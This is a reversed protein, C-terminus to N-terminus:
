FSGAIGIGNGSSYPMVRLSSLASSPATTVPRARGGVITMILGALQTIGDGVIWPVSHNIIYDKPAGSVAPLWIGSVFPGIIPIMLTYYIPKRETSVGQAFIPGLVIPPVMACFLMSLGAGFMAENTRRERGGVAPATPTLAAVPPPPPAAVYIMPAPAAVPEPTPSAVVPEPTPVPALAAAPPSLAAPPPTPVPAAASRPRATPTVAAAAPAPTPRPKSTTAVAPPSAPASATSTTTPAATTPPPPVPVPQPPRRPREPTRAAEAVCQEAESRRTPQGDQVDVQVLNLYTQCARRADLPQGLRLYTEGIRILIEKPGPAGYAQSYLQLALEHNGRAAAAQAQAELGQWDDAHSWGPAALLGAGFVSLAALHRRSGGLRRTRSSDKM